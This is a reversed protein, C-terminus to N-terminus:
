SRDEMERSKDKVGIEKIEPKNEKYTKIDDQIEVM